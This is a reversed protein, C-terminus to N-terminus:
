FFIWLSLFTDIGEFLVWSEETQGRDRREAQSQIAWCRPEIQVVLTSRASEMCTRGAAEGHRRRPVAGGVGVGGANWGRRPMAHVGLAPHDGRSRRWSTKPRQPGIQLFGAEKLLWSFLRIREAWVPAELGHKQKITKKQGTHSAGVPPRRENRESLGMFWHVRPKLVHPTRM